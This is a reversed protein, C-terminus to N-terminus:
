GTAWSGWRRDPSSPGSPGPCCVRRRCPGITRRARGCNWPRLDRGRPTLRRHHPRRPLTGDAQGTGAVHGRRFRPLRAGGVRQRGRQPHGAGVAGALDQGQRRPRAGTTAAVPPGRGLHGRGAAPLVRDRRGAAARRLDDGARDRLQVRGDM